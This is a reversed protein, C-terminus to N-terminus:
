IEMVIWPGFYNQLVKQTKFNLYFVELVKCYARSGQLM